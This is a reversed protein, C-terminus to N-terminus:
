ISLFLLNNINRRCQVHQIRFIKHCDYYYQSKKSLIKIDIKKQLNHIENYGEEESFRFGSLQIGGGQISEFM